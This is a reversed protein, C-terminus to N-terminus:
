KNLSESIINTFLSDIKINDNPNGISLVTNTSDLLFVIDNGLSPNIDNFEYFNLSSDVVAKFNYIKFLFQAEEINKTECLFYIDVRDNFIKKLKRKYIKWEGLKLQCSTCLPNDIYRLITFQTSDKNITDTIEIRKGITDYILDYQNRKCGIFIISFIISILFIIRNM